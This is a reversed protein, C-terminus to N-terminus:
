EMLQNLQTLSAAIMALEEASCSNLLRQTYRRRATQWRRVARRGEATAVLTHARADCPDCDRRLLGLRELARVQRSVAGKSV